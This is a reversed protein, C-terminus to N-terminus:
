HSTRQTEAALLTWTIFIFVVHGLDVEVVDHGAPAAGSALDDVESLSGCLVRRIFVIVIVLFIVVLRRILVHLM